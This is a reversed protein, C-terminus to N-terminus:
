KICKLYDPRESKGQKYRTSGTTTTTRKNCKRRQGYKVSRPKHPLFEIGDDHLEIPLNRVDIEQDEDEGIFLRIWKNTRLEKIATGWKFEYIEWGFLCVIVNDM